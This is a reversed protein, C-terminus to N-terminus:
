HSEGLPVRGVGVIVDAMRSTLLCSLGSRASFFMPWTRRDPECM